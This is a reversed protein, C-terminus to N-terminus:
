TAWAGLGSPSHSIVRDITPVGAIAGATFGSLFLVAPLFLHFPFPDATNASLAPFLFCAGPLSGVAGGLAFGALCLLIRRFSLRRRALALGAVILVILTSISVM